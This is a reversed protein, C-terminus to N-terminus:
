SAAWWMSAPAPVLRTVLHRWAWVIHQGNWNQFHSLSWSCLFLGKRSANGHAHVHISSVHTCPTHHICIHALSCTHECRHYKSSHTIHIHTCAYTHMYPTLIHTYTYIHVHIHSHQHLYTHTCTHHLHIDTHSHTHISM